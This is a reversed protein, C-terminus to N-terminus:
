RYASVLRKYPHRVVLLKFYTELNEEFQKNTIPALYTALRFSVKMLLPQIYVLFFGLFVTDTISISVIKM